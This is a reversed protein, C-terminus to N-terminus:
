IFKSIMMFSGFAAAAMICARIIYAMECFPALDITFKFLGGDYYKPAPCEGDFNVGNSEDYAKLLDSVSGEANEYINKYAGYEDTFQDNYDGIGELLGTGAENIESIDNSQCSEHWAQKALYCTAANGECSFSQCDDASLSGNIGHELDDLGSNIEGEIGKLDDSLEGIGDNLLHNLSSLLKNNTNGIDSLTGTQSEIANKLHNSTDVITDTNLDISNKLADLHSINEAHNKNLDNNIGTLQKNLDKNMSEIAKTTDSNEEVDPEPKDPDPNGTGGGNPKDPDGLDGGTPPDVDVDGACEPYNDSFITCSDETSPADCWNNSEDCCNPYDPSDPKCQEPEPDTPQSDSSCTPVLLQQQATLTDCTVSKYDETVWVAGGELYFVVTRLDQRSSDFRYAQVDFNNCYEFGQCRKTAAATVTEGINSSYRWAVGKQPSVDDKDPVPEDPNSTEPEPLAISCTSDTCFGDLTDHQCEAGTYDADAFCRGSDCGVFSTLQATCKSASGCWYNGLMNRGYAAEDWWVGLTPETEILTECHNTALASFSVSCLIVLSSLLYKINM